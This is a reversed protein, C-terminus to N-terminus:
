WSAVRIVKGKSSLYLIMATYDIDVSYIFKIRAFTTFVSQLLPQCHLTLTFAHLMSKDRLDFLIWSQTKEVNYCVSIHYLDSVTVWTYKSQIGCM